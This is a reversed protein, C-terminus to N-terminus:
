FAEQPIRCVRVAIKLPITAPEPVSRSHCAPGGADGPVLGGVIFFPTPRDYLGRPVLYRTPLLPQRVEQEAGGRLVRLCM